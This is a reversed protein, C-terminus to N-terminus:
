NPNETRADGAIAAITSIAVISEQFARDFEAQNKAAIMPQMARSAFGQIIGVKTILALDVPQANYRRLEELIPPQDGLLEEDSYAFIEPVWYGDVLRWKHIVPPFDFALEGTDGSQSLRGKDPLPFEPISAPLEFAFKRAHKGIQNAHKQFFESTKQTEIAHRDRVLDRCAKFTAAFDDYNEAFHRYGDPTMARMVSSQLIFKKKTTLLTVLEDLTSELSSGAVDYQKIMTALENRVDARDFFAQGKKTLLLYAVGFNGRRAEQSIYDGVQKFTGDVPYGAVLEGFRKNDQTESVANKQAEYLRKATARSDDSLRDIPVNILSGDAKRLVVSHGEVKVFTAEVSFNGTRDTWTEGFAANAAAFLLVSVLIFQVSEYCRANMNSEGRIIVAPRLADIGGSGQNKRAWLPLYIGGPRFFQTPGIERSIGRDGNKQRVLGPFGVGIEPWFFQSLLIGM